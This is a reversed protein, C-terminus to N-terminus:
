DDGQAIPARRCARRRSAGGKTSGRPLRDPRRRGDQVGRPARRHRLAPNPFGAARMTSAMEDFTRVDHCGTLETLRQSAADLGRRGSPAQPTERSAEVSSRQSSSEGSQGLGGGRAEARPPPSAVAPDQSDRLSQSDRLLYANCRQGLRGWRQFPRPRRKGAPRSSRPKPRRPAKQPRSSMSRLTPQCSRGSPRRPPCGVTLLPPRAPQGCTPTFCSTM